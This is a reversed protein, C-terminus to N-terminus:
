DEDFTQYLVCGLIAMLLSIVGLKFGYHYSSDFLNSAGNVMFLGIGFFIFLISIIKIIISISLDKM